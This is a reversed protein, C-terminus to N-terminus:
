VTDDSGTESTAFQHASSHRSRGQQRRQAGRQQSAGGSIILRRDGVPEDRRVADPHVDGLLAPSRQRDEAVAEGLGPIRPSVLKGRERAGAEVGHRGFHPSIPLGIPRALDVLVREQVEDAVHGAEDIREACVRGDDGAM